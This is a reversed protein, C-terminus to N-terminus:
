KADGRYAAGQGLSKQILYDRDAQRVESHDIKLYLANILEETHRQRDANLKDAYALMLSLFLVGILLALDYPGENKEYENKERM